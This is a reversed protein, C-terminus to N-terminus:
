NNLLLRKPSLSLDLSTLGLENKHIYGLIGMLRLPSQFRCLTASGGEKSEGNLCSFVRTAPLFFNSSMDPLAMKYDLLAFASSYLLNVPVLSALTQNM